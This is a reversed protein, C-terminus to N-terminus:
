VIDFPTEWWSWEYTIHTTHLDTFIRIKVRVLTIRFFYYIEGLKVWIQLPNCKEGLYLLFM